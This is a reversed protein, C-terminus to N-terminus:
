TSQGCNVTPPEGFRLNPTVTKRNGSFDKNITRTSQFNATENSQGMKHAPRFFILLIKNFNLLKIIKFTHNWTFLCPIKLFKLNWNPFFKSFISFNLNKTQFGDGFAWFTFFNWSNQRRPLYVSTDRILDCSGVLVCYLYLFFM